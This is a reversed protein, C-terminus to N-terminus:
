VPAQIRCVSTRERRDNQSSIASQLWADMTAVINTETPRPISVQFDSLIEPLFAEFEEDSRDLEDILLVPTNEQSSMIAELLPRKILYPETYIVM